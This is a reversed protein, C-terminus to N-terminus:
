QEQRKDKDRQPVIKQLWGQRRLKKYSWRLPSSIAYVTACLLLLRPPDSMIVGAIIIAMLVFVFPVRKDFNIDKFSPYVLNSVMLLGLATTVLGVFIALGISQEFAAGSWVMSALLAAAPPSALGQFYRSPASGSNINFRALRLAACSTYIFAASWGLKDLPGLMWTFVLVAPAVGFAVMDSLSDYQTGFQSQTGTMRAVRGDLGDFAMAAFIAIAGEVYRGQLAVLLSYFGGFLTGTTLLNPLLYVGLRTTNVPTSAIEEEAKDESM